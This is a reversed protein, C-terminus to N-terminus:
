AGLMDLPGGVLVLAFAALIVYEMVQVQSSGVTARSHVASDGASM